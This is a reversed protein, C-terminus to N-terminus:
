RFDEKCISSYFSGMDKLSIAVTCSDDREYGKRANIWPPEATIMCELSNASFEGYTLYVSHLLELTTKDFIVERGTPALKDWWDYNKYREYLHPSMAGHVWAQFETDNILIENHLVYSWAQAYYCLSALKKLCMKEKTLFWESVDFVSYYM